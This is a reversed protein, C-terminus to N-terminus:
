INFALETIGDADGPGNYGTPVPLTITDAVGDAVEFGGPVHAGAAASNWVYATGGKVATNGDVCPVMIYGMTLVDIPQRAPPVGPGFSQSMGGSDQQFPYPRVAIGYIGTLAGDGAKVPRVSNNAGVTVVAQGYFQVPDTHDNLCPLASFPHSRNIDGAFGSGMRYKFAVDRTRCRIIAPAAPTFLSKIKRFRM